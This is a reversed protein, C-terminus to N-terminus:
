LSEFLAAIEEPTLADNPGKESVSNIESAAESTDNDLAAEAEIDKAETMSKEIEEVNTDVLAAELDSVAEMAEITQSVDAVAAEAGAIDNNMADETTLEATDDYEPFDYMPPPNIEDLEELTIEDINITDEMNDFDEAVPLEEPITEPIEVPAYPEIVPPTLPEHEPTEPTIIPNPTVLPEPEIVPNPTVLPEPEIVPNPTVFPEPTTVPNPTILPEPATVPEHTITTEAESLDASQGNLVSQVNKILNENAKVLQNVTIANQVERALKANSESLENILGTIDMPSDASAKTELQKQTINEVMRDMLVNVAKLGQIQMNEAEAANKKTALYIAKQAKIMTENQERKLEESENRMKIVGDFSLYGTILVVLGIGILMFYDYPHINIWYLEFFVATIFTLIFYVLPSNKKTNKEM